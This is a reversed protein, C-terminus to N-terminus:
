FPRSLRSLALLSWQLAETLVACPFTDATRQAWAICSCPIYQAFPTPPVQVGACILLLSYSLVTGDSLVISRSARDLGHMEGNLLFVQADLGMRAISSKTFASGIGGICIGGPALLTINGFTLAADLLLGEVVSLGCESAGVVVVQTCWTTISIGWLLMKCRCVQANIVTKRVFASCKSFVFLAFSAEAVDAPMSRHRPPVQQMLHLIDPPQQGPPLAYYLSTCKMLKMVSALLQRSRCV